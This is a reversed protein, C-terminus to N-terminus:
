AIRKIKIASDNFIFYDHVYKMMAEKRSGAIVTREEKVPVLGDWEEWEQTVQYTNM